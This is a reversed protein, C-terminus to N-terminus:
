NLEEGFTSFCVEASKPRGQCAERKGETAHEEPRSVGTNEYEALMGVINAVVYLCLVVLEGDVLDEQRMCVELFYSIKILTTDHSLNAM